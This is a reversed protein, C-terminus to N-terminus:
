KEKEMLPSIFLYAGTLALGLDIVALLGTVLTSAEISSYIIQFGCLLTLLGLIVPLPESSLSFNLLGNCILILAAALQITSLTPIMDSALPVVSIVVMVGIAASLLRYVRGSFRNVPLLADDEAGSKNYMALGLLACSMWGGVMRATALIFPFYNIVILFVGLYQLALAGIRWRWDAMVLLTISTLTVLVALPITLFGPMM